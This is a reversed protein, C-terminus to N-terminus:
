GEVEKSASEEGPNGVNGSSAGGTGGTGAKVETSGELVAVSSGQTLIGISPGGGGGGGHGGRGGDGGRGGHGGDGNLIGDGGSGGPRGTGGPGGDGGAGGDGGTGGTVDCDVLTLKSGSALYVAFSGGGGTGYGGLGGGGGAGGGSGGGGGCGGPALAGGAGGGGGGGGGGPGGSGGGRSDAPRYAYWTTAPNLSGFAEGALADLGTVGDEGDGGDEGAGGAGKGGSGGDGGRIGTGDGGDCAVFVGSWGGRGSGSVASGGPTCGVLLPEFGSVCGCTADLDECNADDGDNGTTGNAGPIGPGGDRGDGGRGGRISCNRVVVSTSARMWLGVSSAEPEETDQGEITLGELTLGDTDDGRVTFRMGLADAHGAIETARSQLDRLWTQPDFGGYVGVKPALQVSEEYRGVAVYVDGGEAAAVDIARQITRYPNKRTGDDGDDGDPSVFHAFAQSELLTVRVRDPASTGNVSSVVLEFEFTCVRSPLGTVLVRRGSRDLGFDFEVPPGHVQTWEYDLAEGGPDASGSGDLVFSGLPEGRAFLSYDADEGADAVPGGATTFNWSAPAALANGALSRFGPAVTVTFTRDAALPADPVFTITDGTGGLTGDVGVSGDSLTLAGATVTGRDLAESLRAVVMVDAAVDTADPAPTAEVLELATTTFSWSVVAALREGETSSFDTAVTVEYTTSPDLPAAPTFSLTSDGVALEGDVGELTLSTPTVTAADLERDFRVTVAADADVVSGDPPTAEVIQLASITFSWRVDQELANGARDTVGTTLTARYTRGSTLADAPSFTASTDDVAITGAVPTPGDLDEVRLTTSDVTATAIRESFVARVPTGLGAVAGDAPEVVVVRPAVEDDPVVVDSPGTGDDGGCGPAVLWLLPVLLLLLYPRSTM